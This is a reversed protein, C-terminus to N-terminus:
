YHALVGHGMQDPSLIQKKGNWEFASFCFTNKGPWSPKHEKCNRKCLRKGELLHQPSPLARSGVDGRVHGTDGRPIDSLLGHPVSGLISLRIGSGPTSLSVWMAVTLNISVRM